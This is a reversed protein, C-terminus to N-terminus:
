GKSGKLWKGVWADYVKTRDENKGFRHKDRGSVENLLNREKDSLKSLISEVRPDPFYRMVTLLKGRCQLLRQRDNIEGTNPIPHFALADRVFAAGWGLIRARYALEVDDYYWFQGSDPLGAARVLAFSWLSAAFCPCFPEFSEVSSNLKGVRPQKWDIDLFAGDSRLAHGASSVKTEDWGSSVKTGDRALIPGGWM